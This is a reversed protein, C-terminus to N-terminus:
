GLRSRMSVAGAVAAGLLVLTITGPEPIAVLQTASETAAAEAVVEESVVVSKTFLDATEPVVLEAQAIGALLTLCCTTIIQKTIAKM